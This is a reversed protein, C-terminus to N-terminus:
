IRFKLTCALLDEEYKFRITTPITYIRSPHYITISCYNEYQHVVNENEIWEKIDASKEKFQEATMRQMIEIMPPYNFVYLYSEQMESLLTDYM